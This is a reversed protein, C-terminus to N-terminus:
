SVQAVRKRALVNLYDGLFTERVVRSLGRQLPTAGDPRNQRNLYAFVRNLARDIPNAPPEEFWPILEVAEVNVVEFGAREISGVLAARSYLQVHDKPGACWWAQGLIRGAAGQFTPTSCYFHGGPKLASHINALDEGPNHCHEIVDQSFAIDFGSPIQRPDTIVSVGARQRTQRAMADALDFGVVKGFGHQSAALVLRGAGCGYDLISLNGVETGPNAVRLVRTFLDRYAGLDEYSINEFNVSAIEELRSRYEAETPRPV